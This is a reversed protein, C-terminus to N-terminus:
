YKQCKGKGRNKNIKNKEEGDQIAQKLQYEFQEQSLKPKINAKYSTNTKRYRNKM